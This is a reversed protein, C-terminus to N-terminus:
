SAKYFFCLKLTLVFIVQVLGVSGLFIAAHQRMHGVVIPALNRILFLSSAAAAGLLALWHVMESPAVCIVAAILFSTLSYGYLCLSTILRLSSGMQRLIFWIAIPVSSSFGYIVSFISLLEEFNYIWVKGLMWAAAWSSFHSTVAAVFVLTTAIWFPGYADPKNEIM